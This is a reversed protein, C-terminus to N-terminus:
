HCLCEMHKDSPIALIAARVTTGDIAARVTTGDTLEGSKEAHWELWFRLKPTIKQQNKKSVMERHRNGQTKWDTKM